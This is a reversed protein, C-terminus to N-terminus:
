RVVRLQPRTLRAAEDVCECCIFANKGDVMSRVEKDSKGCFDCYCTAHRRRALLRM